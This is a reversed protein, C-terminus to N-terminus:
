SEEAMQRAKYAVQRAEVMQELRTTIQPLPSGTVEWM